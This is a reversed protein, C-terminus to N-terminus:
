YQARDPGPHIKHFIEMAQKARQLQAFLRDLEGYREDPAPAQLDAEARAIELAKEVIRRELAAGWGDLLKYLDRDQEAM